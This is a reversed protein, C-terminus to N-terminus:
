RAAPGAAAAEEHAIHSLQRWMVMLFVASGAFAFWFPAVVGAGQAILGGLGAGAVLGAYSGVTNVANVRGQLESPVARQRVTISTTGWAFAEFGFCFLTGGAVWPSTTLALVLHVLTEIVLGIRMLDGLTIRATIRGYLLNAVIGGAAIAANLLGFGLSDVGLRRTAYLVLVSWAAGYTVNFILITLVLTRVAAHRMTWIVGEIVDRRWHSDRAPEHDPLVIRAVLVAGFAVLIAQSAFPVARGLGFLLAGLPPGVFQSLTVFGIQLRANALALDDPAVMMPLLTSSTNNSFVELTGLLFMAVLVLAISGHGTLLTVALLGVVGARAVETGVVLRRRDVRDSVVGAVLAFLLRPLWQLLASLAVLFENRTLSSVLLPGAALAMGDGICALVTSGLLFRFGVGLRAPAAIDLLRSV